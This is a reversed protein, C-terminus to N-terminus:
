EVHSWAARLAIRSVTSTSIGFDTGIVRLVEGAARRRRIERVAEPTLRANYLQAGRRILHPKRATWHRDGVLARGRVFMDRINDKQTGPELHDPRVCPPNDCRHRLIFGPPIPGVMLEYAARHAMRVKRKGFWFQGYGSTIRLGIWLWCGESKQVNAWFRDRVEELQTFTAVSEPEPRTHVHIAHVTM